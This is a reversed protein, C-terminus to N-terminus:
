PPPTTTMMATTATSTVKKWRMKGAKDRYTIFSLHDIIEVHGEPFLSARSTPKPKLKKADSPPPPPSPPASPVAATTAAAVATTATTAAASEVEDDLTLYSKLSMLGEMLEEYDVASKFGYVTCVMVKKIPINQQVEKMISDFNKLFEKRMVPLFWEFDKPVNGSLFEKV